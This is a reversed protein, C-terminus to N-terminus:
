PRGPPVPRSVGDSFSLRSYPPPVGGGYMNERQTATPLVRTFFMEDLSGFLWGAYHGDATGMLTLKVAASRVGTSHPVVDPKQDANVRLRLQGATRDYEALIHLKAWPVVPGYRDAAIVKVATGDHVKFKVKGDAGDVYLKWCQKNSDLEDWCSAITYERFKELPWELRVWTGIAFSADAPTFASDVAAVRLYSTGGYRGQVSCGGGFGVGTTANQFGTLHHTSYSDRWTDHTNDDFTWYALPTPFDLRTPTTGSTVAIRSGEVKVTARVDGTLTLV